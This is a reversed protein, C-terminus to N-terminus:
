IGMSKCFRPFIMPVRRKYEVFLGQFKTELAKEELILRHFLIPVYIFCAISMALKSNVVLPLGIAETINSLYYPNRLYFYPGSQILEHSERIEIHISHYVGLTKIAWNRGILSVVVAAMGTLTASYYLSGTDLEYWARFVALYFSVYAIVILPLSYPAIIKGNLKTRKRFTESLREVAYVVLFFLIAQKMELVYVRVDSM